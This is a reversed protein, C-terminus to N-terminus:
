LVGGLKLLVGMLLGFLLALRLMDETFTIKGASQKGTVSGPYAFTSEGILLDRVSLFLVSQAALDGGSAFVGGGKRKLADVWLIAEPGYIGFLALSGGPSDTLEPLIGATFSLPTPGYLMTQVGARHLVPSFGDRYRNQVIQRAFVVLGGDASGLTLGGDVGTEKDLFSPLASLAHLGLGPFALPSLRDGLLVKREEGHEMAAVQAQHLREIAPRKRVTYDKNLNLFKSLLLLIAAGAIFIWGLLSWIM